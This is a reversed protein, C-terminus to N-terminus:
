YLSLTSPLYVTHNGVISISRERTREMAEGEQEEEEERHERNEM